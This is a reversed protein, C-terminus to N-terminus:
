KLQNRMFSMFERLHLGGVDPNPDWEEYDMIIFNHMYIDCLFDREENDSRSFAAIFQDETEIHDNYGMTVISLRFYILQDKSFISYHNSPPKLNRYKPKMLHPIQTVKM